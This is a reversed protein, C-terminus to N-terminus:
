HSLRHSLVPGCSRPNGRLQQSREREGPKRNSAAVLGPPPSSSSNMVALAAHEHSSILHLTFSRSHHIDGQSDSKWETMKTKSEGANQFRFSKGSLSSIVFRFQPFLNRFLHTLCLFTPSPSKGVLPYEEIFFFHCPPSKRADKIQVSLSSYCRVCVPM